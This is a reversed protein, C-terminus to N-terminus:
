FYYSKFLSHSFTCHTRLAVVTGVGDGGGAAGCTSQCRAIEEETGQAGRRRGGRLSRDTSSADEVTVGAGRLRPRSIVGWRLGPSVPVDSAYSSVLFRGRERAESRPRNM